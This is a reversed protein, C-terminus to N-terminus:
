FESRMKELFYEIYKIQGMNTQRASTQEAESVDIQRMFTMQNLNATMNFKFTSRKTRKRDQYQGRQMVIFNTDTVDPIIVAAAKDDNGKGKSSIEDLFKFLEDVKSPRRLFDEELESHRWKSM